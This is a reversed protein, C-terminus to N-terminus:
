GMFGIIFHRRTITQFRGNVEGGFVAIEIM